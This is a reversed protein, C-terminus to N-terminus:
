WQGIMMIFTPILQTCLSEAILLGGIFKSLPKKLALSAFSAYFLVAWSISFIGFRIDGSSFYYYAALSVFLAAGLCYYGLGSLDFDFFLGAALTIYFVSFSLCLGATILSAPDRAIGAMWISLVAIITGIIANPAVVSKPPIVGLMFAADVLFIYSAILLVITSM